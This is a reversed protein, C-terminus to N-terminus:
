TADLTTFDTAALGQLYAGQDFSGLVAGDLEDNLQRHRSLRQWANLAGRMEPLGQKEQVFPTISLVLCLL